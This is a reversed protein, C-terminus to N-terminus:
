DKSLEAVEHWALQQLAVVDTLRRVLRDFLFRAAGPRMKRQVARRRLRAPTRTEASPQKQGFPPSEMDFNSCLIPSVPRDTSAAAATALSAPACSFTRQFICLAKALESGCRPGEPVRKVLSMSRM